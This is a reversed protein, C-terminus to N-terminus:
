RDLARLGARRSAVLIAGVSLLAACGALFFTWRPGIADVSLGGLASGGSSGVLFGVALWGFTETMAGEPAITGLRTYLRALAPAVVSAGIFLLV